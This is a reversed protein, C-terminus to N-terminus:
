FIDMNDLITIKLKSISEDLERIKKEADNLVDQKLKVKNDLEIQIVQKLNKTAIAM